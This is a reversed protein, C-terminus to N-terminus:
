KIPTVDHENDNTDDDNKNEHNNKEKKKIIPIKFVVLISTTLFLFHVIHSSLLM